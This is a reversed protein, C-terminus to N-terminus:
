HASIEILISNWSRRITGTSKDIQMRVLHDAKKVGCKAVLTKALLKVDHDSDLRQQNLNDTM